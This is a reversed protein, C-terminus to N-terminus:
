FSDTLAPAHDASHGKNEDVFDRKEVRWLGIKVGGVKQFFYELIGQRCHNGSTEMKMM